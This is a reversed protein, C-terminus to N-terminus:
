KQGFIDTKLSFEHLELLRVPVFSGKLCLHNQRSDVHCFCIFSLQNSVSSFYSDLCFRLPWQLNRPFYSLDLYVSLGLDNSSM